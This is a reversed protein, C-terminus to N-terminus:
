YAGNAVQWCQLGLSRWMAVVHDRDDLVLRVDFYPEIHERYLDLKVQDDPRFDDDRRMLIRAYSLNPCHEQLWAKTAARYKEMRGTVFFVEDSGFWLDQVYDAVVANCTDGCINGHFGEWDKPQSALYHRRHDINCLTGDLDCIIAPKRSM